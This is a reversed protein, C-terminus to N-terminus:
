MFDEKLDQLGKITHEITRLLKKHETNEPDYPYINAMDRAQKILSNIRRLINGAGFCLSLRMNANLRHTAQGKWIDAGFKIQKEALRLFQGGGISGNKFLDYLENIQQLAVKDIKDKHDNLLKIIEAPFDNSTVILLYKTPIYQVTEPKDKFVKYVRMYFHATSYPLENDFTLEIWKIFMGHQLLQKDEYLIRGIFYIDRKINFLRLQVESQDALLKAKESETLHETIESITLKEVESRKTAPLQNRNMM